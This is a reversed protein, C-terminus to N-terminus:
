TTKKSAISDTLNRLTCTEHSDDPLKRLSPASDM